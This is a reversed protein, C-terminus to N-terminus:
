FSNLRVEVSKWHADLGEALAMEKIVPALNLIGKKSAKQFTIKKVFSETSIGSYSKAFANTPLSHNTGSAYDGLSEPTLNGIFVSGANKVKSANKEANLTSIILHEPAYINAIEFSSETDTTLIIKCNKLSFNLINMRSLGNKQVEVEKVVAKILSASNTILVVQSDTGHEAQALLDSAVFIPNASNDAIVCVESPGAPMNIAVGLTQAKKKAATVFQNGPGFIKDVKGISETGYTMAAIAQSGGVKFIKSIGVLKATWLIIPNIQGNKDPPTCLIINKCGAIKAPVGLMLVTSFLPATGGPIYLGISEIPVSKRWCVIGETTVVKLENKIQSKHFKEINKNAIKIAKKLKKSVFKESNKIDKLSIIPSNLSARDYKKTLTYLASDGKDEVLKFVKNIVKSLDKSKIEPRKLIKKVEAIEPYKYVTM